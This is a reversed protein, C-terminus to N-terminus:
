TAPNYIFRYDTKTSIRRKEFWGAKMLKEFIARLQDVERIGTIHTMLAKFTKYGVWNWNHVNRSCFYLILFDLLEDTNM